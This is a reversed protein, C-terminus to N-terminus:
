IKIQDNGSVAGDSLKIPDYRPNDIALRMIKYPTIEGETLLLQFLDPSFGSLLATDIQSETVPFDINKANVNWFIIRPVPMGKEKYKRIIEEYNTNNKACQDFQMDSIILITNIINNEIKDINDVKNEEAEDYENLLLEFVAQIDTNMAWNKKDMNNIQDFLTDGKFTEMVPKSSFTVWKNHFNGKNCYGAILGLSIAVDIPRASASGSYMSGSVDIVSLVGSFNIDKNDIHKLYSTWQAEVTENVTNSNPIYWENLYKRVIEYPFLQGVNMKKTGAQVADRYEKWREPDHKEFAKAYRLMARSAVKEYDIESWEGAVMKQEVVNLRKTLGTVINRYEKKSVKMNKCIHHVSNYKRDHAGGERPAWKAVLSVEIKANENDSKIKHYDELLSKAFFEYVKRDLNPLRDNPKDKNIPTLLQYYDKFYGYVHLLCLNYELDIYHNEKVWNLCRYFQLKEGKGGRCDRLHFILKLTDLPDEKWAGILFLELDEQPLDRTVKFFLDVRSSTTTSLTLANNLTRKYM